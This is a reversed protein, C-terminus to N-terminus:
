NGTRPPPKVHKVDLRHTDILLMGLNSKIYQGTFSQVFIANQVDNFSPFFSGSMMGGGFNAKSAATQNAIDQSTYVPANVLALAALLMCAFRVMGAPM